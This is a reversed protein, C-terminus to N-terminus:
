SAVAFGPGYYNQDDRQLVLGAIAISGSTFATGAPLIFNLRLYRPLSKGAAVPPWDLPAIKAGATLVAAAYAPSLGYTDFTVNDTSGQMAVQLTAANGTVFADGVYMALKPMAVGDGIGIDEGFRSQIGVNMSVGGTLDIVSESPTNTDTILSQSNVFLLQSDLIM